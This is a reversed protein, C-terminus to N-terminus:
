NYVCSGILYSTRDDHICVDYKVKSFHSFTKLTWMLNLWDGQSNIAHIECNKDTGIAAIPSGDLITKRIIDRYYIASFGFEKIERFKYLLKPEEFNATFVM